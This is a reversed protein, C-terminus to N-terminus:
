EVSQQLRVKAVLHGVLGVKQIEAVDLTGSVVTLFLGGVVGHARVMSDTFGFDSVGLTAVALGFRPDPVMALRYRKAYAVGASDVPIDIVLGYGLDVPTGFRRGASSCGFSRSSVGFLGVSITPGWPLTSDGRPALVRGALTVRCGGAAGRLDAVLDFEEHSLYCSGLLLTIVCVFVVDVVTSSRASPM